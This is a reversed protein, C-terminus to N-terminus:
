KAGLEQAQWWPPSSRVGKLPRQRCSARSCPDLGWESLGAAPSWKLGPDLPLFPPPRRPLAVLLSAPELALHGAQWHPASQASEGLETGGRHFAGLLRAHTQLLRKVAM